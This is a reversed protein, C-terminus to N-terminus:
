NHVGKSHFTILRIDEAAGPLEAVGGGVGVGDVHHQRDIADGYHRQFQFVLESPLIIYAGDIIVGVAMDMANGRAIFQKFEALFKKMDIGM